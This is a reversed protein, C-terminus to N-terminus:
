RRLRARAALGITLAPLVLMPLCWCVPSYGPRQTYGISVLWASRNWNDGPTSGGFVYSGDSAEAVSGLFGDPGFTRQWEADGSESVKLIDPGCALVFGGDSAQIVDYPYGASDLTRNWLETGNLAVRSLYVATDYGTDKSGALLYGDDGANCLTHFAIDGAQLYCAEWLFDGTDDIRLLYGNHNRGGEAFVFGAIAYGGGPSRVIDCGELNGRGYSMSWLPNGNADTKLAQIYIGGASVNKIRTRNDNIGMVVLSGDADVVAAKFESAGDIRYSKHFLRSGDPGAKMLYGDRYGNAGIFLYNGDPANAVANFWSVEAPYVNQWLLSGNKDAQGAWANAAAAARSLGALVYGGDQTRAISLCSANGDEGFTNSWLVDDPRAPPTAYAAGIMLVLTVAAM